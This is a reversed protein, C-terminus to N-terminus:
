LVAARFLLIFHHALFLEGSLSHCNWRGWLLGCLRSM